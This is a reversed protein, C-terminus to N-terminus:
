HDMPVSTKENDGPHVTGREHAVGVEYEGSGSGDRGLGANAVRETGNRQNEESWDGPQFVAAGILEGQKSSRVRDFGLSTGGGGPLRGQSGSGCLTLSWLPPRNCCLGWGAIAM